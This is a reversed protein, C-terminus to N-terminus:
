ECAMLVKNNKIRLIGNNIEKIADRCAGKVILSNDANVSESRLQDRLGELLKLEQSGSKVM